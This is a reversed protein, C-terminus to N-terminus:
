KILFWQGRVTQIMFPDFQFTNEGGDTAVVAVSQGPRPQIAVTNGKLPRVDTRMMELLKAGLHIQAKVKDRLELRGAEDMM